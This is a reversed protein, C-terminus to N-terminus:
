WVFPVLRARDPYDAGFKELYWAHTTAARPALNVLSVMFIFSGNPGWSMIAFGLWMVLESMYHACTAYDFLGGYPIRYRPGPGDRLHRMIYDHYITYALGTYYMIAGIRFRPNSFWKNNLHKGHEAFWRANLYGHCITVMWSGFATFIAFNSPGSVRIMSPWLWGRYAYHCCFVFALFSSMKTGKLSGPRFFYFYVFCVSCPLEMLWWGIRPDLSVSTSGGFRGYQTPSTMEAIFCFVILVAAYSVVADFHPDGTWRLFAFKHHKGKAAADSTM